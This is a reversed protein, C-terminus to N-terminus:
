LLADPILAAILQVVSITKHFINGSGYKGYKVDPLLGPRNLRKVWHV